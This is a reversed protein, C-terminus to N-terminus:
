LQLLDQAVLGQLRGLAVHLQGARVDLHVVGPGRQGPRQAQDPLLSTSKCDYNVLLMRSGAREAVDAALAPELGNGPFRRAGPAVYLGQLQELPM